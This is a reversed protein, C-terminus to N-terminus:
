RTFRFEETRERPHFEHFCSVLVLLPSSGKRSYLDKGATPLDLVQVFVQLSKECGEAVDWIRITYDWSASCVETDSLWLLGSVVEKHGSLTM